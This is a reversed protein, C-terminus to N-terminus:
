VIIRAAVGLSLNCILSEVEGLWLISVGPWGTGASVMYRSAGPLTLVPTGTDLDGTHNTGSFDQSPISSRTKRERPLCRLWRPPGLPRVGM